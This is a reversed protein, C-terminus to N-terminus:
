GFAQGLMAYRTVTGPADAKPNLRMHTMETCAAIGCSEVFDIFRGRRALTDIRMYTGIRRALVHRALAIAEDDNRAIVPGLLEGRGFPRSFACGLIAGDPDALVVGEAPQLMRDMVVSRGRGSSADRDLELLAVRDTGVYPRLTLEPSLHAPPTAIDPATVHGQMQFGDGFKRFGLQEYLRIAQPTVNVVIERTGIDSLLREMLWRGAGRSQLRPPTIVMGICASEEGLLFWLASGVVRGIEDCAVYGNAVSLIQRLDQPRQPWGVGVVLEHLRALDEADVPRATVSFLELDIQGQPPM